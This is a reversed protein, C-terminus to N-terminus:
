AEKSILPLGKAARAAYEDIRRRRALELPTVTPAPQFRAREARRRAMDERHYCRRCLARVIEPADLNCRECKGARPM